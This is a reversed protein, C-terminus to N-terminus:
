HGIGSTEHSLAPPPRTCDNSRPMSPIDVGVELKPKHRSDLTIGKIGDALHAMRHYRLMMRLSSWVRSAMNRSRVLQGNADLENLLHVRFNELVQHNLKAM